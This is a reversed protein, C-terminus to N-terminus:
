CSCADLVKVGLEFNSPDTFYYFVSENSEARTSGFSLVTAAGSGTVDNEYVATVQFRGGVVCAGTATRTCFDAAPCTTGFPFVNFGTNEPTGGVPFTRVDVVAGAEELVESVYFCGTSPPVFAIAGTDVNDFETGADLTGLDFSAMDVGGSFGVPPPSATAFLHLTLEGSTGSARNNSIIQAFMDAQGSGWTVHVNGAIILGTAANSPTVPPSFSTRGAPALAHM